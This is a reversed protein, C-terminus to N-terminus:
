RQGPSKKTIKVGYQREFIDILVSLIYDPDPEKDFHKEWGEM